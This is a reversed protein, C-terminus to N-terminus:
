RWRDYYFVPGPEYVVARRPTPVYVACGALFGALSALVVVHLAGRTLGFM